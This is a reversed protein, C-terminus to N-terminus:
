VKINMLPQANTSPACSSIIAQKKFRPLCKCFIPYWIFSFFFCICSYVFSSLYLHRCMSIACSSTALTHPYIRFIIFPHTLPHKYVKVITEQREKNSREVIANRLRGEEKNLNCPFSLRHQASNMNLIIYFADHAYGGCITLWSIFPPTVNHASPRCTATGVHIFLHMIHM